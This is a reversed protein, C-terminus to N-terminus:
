LSLKIRCCGWAHPPSYWSILLGTFFFVAAYPLTMTDMGGPATVPLCKYIVMTCPFTMLVSFQAAMIRGSNPFGKTLMDGASVDYCGENTPDSKSESVGTSSLDASFYECLVTALSSASALLMCIPDQVGM